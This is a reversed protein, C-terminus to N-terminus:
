SQVYELPTAFIEVKRRKRQQSVPKSRKKLLHLTRGKTVVCLTIRLL